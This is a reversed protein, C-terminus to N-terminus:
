AVRDLHTLMARVMAPRLWARHMGHDIGAVEEVHIVGDRRLREIRRGLRSRLYGIGDDGDSFLALIPAGRKSLQDLWRGAPPRRGLMDLATWVGLRRAREERLREETRWIGTDVQSLVPDGWEWYLQPNLAIVGAVPADRAVRLAMWASACLGVLVVREHGEARLANVLDVTEGYTHRDYPRGPAHGEDPSEGWGRWDIRLARHGAAALARAYEVWARGPGVHSSSGANLFVVTSAGDRAADPETAIGVLGDLVVLRETLPVGDWTVRARQQAPPLARGGADATPEAVWAAIADVIPEAVEADEPARDLALDSGGPDTVDVQGGLERLRAAVRGSLQGVILSRRAPAAQLRALDLSALEALTETSFVVGGSTVGTRDPLEDGLLRLARTYRKGSSEPAWAVVEDVGLAAGDALAIMAGLRVGVVTLRECGLARLEQAATAVSARWAALRDADWQDGASDGIGDYDLRLVTHGAGALREAIARVTAHATWYQAGVDPLVLVGATSLGTAPTTLWGMLPRQPDGFWRGATTVPARIGAAVSTEATVSVM